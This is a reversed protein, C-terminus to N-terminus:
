KPSQPALHPLPLLPLPVPLQHASLVLEQLVFLSLGHQFQTHSLAPAGLAASLSFMIAHKKHISVNSKIAQARFRRENLMILHMFKHM